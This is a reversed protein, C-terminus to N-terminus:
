QVVPISVFKSQAEAFIQKCLPCTRSCKMWQSICPTHFAHHCQLISVKQRRSIECLCIACEVDQDHQTAMRTQVSAIDAPTASEEVAVAHEFAVNDHRIMYFCFRFVASSAYCVQYVSLIMGPGVYVWSCLHVNATAVLFIISLGLTLPGGVTALIYGLLVSPRSPNTYFLLVANDGLYLICMSIMLPQLKRSCGGGDTFYM